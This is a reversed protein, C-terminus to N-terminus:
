IRKLVFVIHKGNKAEAWRLRHWVYRWLLRNLLPSNIYIERTFKAIVRSMFSLRCIREARVLELPAQSTDLQQRFLAEDYHRYHKASLPQITSPVCIIVHGEIRTRDALTQIFRSVDEDPIHELVQVATVVDFVEDLEAADMVHFELEPHFAQAFRIARESLDVGVCREIRTGILDSFRGDGCGVDLVTTPKLDLVAEVVHQMYSLYELGGYVNRCTRAGGTDDFHPLYHYPFAYQNDQIIFKERATPAPRETM